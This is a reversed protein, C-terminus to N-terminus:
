AACETTVPSGLNALDCLEPRGACCDSILYSFLQRVTDTDIAYHIYRGDRTAQLLGSQELTALYGSLSSTPLELQQAIDGACMGGTGSQVLLRFIALRQVHALASLQKIHQM